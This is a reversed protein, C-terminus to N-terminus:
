AVLDQDQPHRKLYSAVYSCRPRVAYGQARAHDLATRVLRAAVGQGQLAPDVGTHHMVMVRGDQRYDLSGAPQGDISAVFRQAEADHRIQVQPGDTM